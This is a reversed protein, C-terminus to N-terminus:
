KLKLDFLRKVNDLAMKFALVFFSIASPYLSLIFHAGGRSNAVNISPEGLRGATKSM